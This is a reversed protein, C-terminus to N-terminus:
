RTKEAEVALSEMALMGDPMRDTKALRRFREHPSQTLERTTINIFGAGGLVASLADVDYIFQHGWARMFHNFVDVGTAANELQYATRSYELYPELHPPTPTELLTKLFSLDPTVLRILGGPKLIRHCEKVMAAAAAHPIHEIMHESYVYDFSADPLEFPQTADLFIEDGRPCLETNLWGPLHNAGCGIHLGRVANASLYHRVLRQNKRTLLRIANTLRPETWIWAQSAREYAGLSKLFAKAAPKIVTATM